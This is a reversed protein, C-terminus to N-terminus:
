HIEEKIERIVSVDRQDSFKRLAQGMPKDNREITWKKLSNM